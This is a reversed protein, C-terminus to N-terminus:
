VRSIVDNTRHLQSSNGGMKWEHDLCSILQWAHWLQHVIGKIMYGNSYSISSNGTKSLTANSTTSLKISFELVIKKQALRFYNFGTKAQFSETRKGLSFCLKNVM